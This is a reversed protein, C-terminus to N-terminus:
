NNEFYWENQETGEDEPDYAGADLEIDGSWRKFCVEAFPDFELM